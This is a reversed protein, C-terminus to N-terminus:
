GPRQRHRDDRAGSSPHHSVGGRPATRHYRTLGGAVPGCRRERRHDADRCRGVVAGHRLRKPLLGQFRGHGGKIAEAVAEEVSRRADGEFFGAIPRNLVEATDTIELLRLGERNIYLLRGDLDLIKVCDGTNEVIRKNIEEAQRLAQEGRKRETIDTFTGSMQVATGHADRAVSGRALFWRISGDRHLLRHEFEYFATERAIHARIRELGTAKDDPHVLRNWDDLHNRIEHDQYGLMEKLVPDVYIEGTALHWDWIGVGGAAAARRYRDDAHM